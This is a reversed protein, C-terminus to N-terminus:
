DTVACSLFDKEPRLRVRYFCNKSESGTVNRDTEM